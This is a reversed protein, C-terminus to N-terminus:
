TALTFEPVTVAILVAVLVAPGGILAPPPGMARAIVGHGLQEATPVPLVAGQGYGAQSGRRDGHRAQGAALAALTGPGVSLSSAAWRLM